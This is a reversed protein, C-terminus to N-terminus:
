LVRFLERTCYDRCLYEQTLQQATLDDKLSISVLIDNLIGYRDETSGVNINDGLKPSLMDSQTAYERYEGQSDV